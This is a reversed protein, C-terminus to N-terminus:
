EVRRLHLGKGVLCAVGHSIGRKRGARYGHRFVVWEQTRAAEVGITRAPAGVVNGNVADDAAIDGGCSFRSQAREAIVADLFDLYDAIVEVGLEAAVGARLDLDDGLTPSVFEVAARVPKVLVGEEVCAVEEVVYLRITRVSRSCGCRKHLVLTTKRNAARHDLVM